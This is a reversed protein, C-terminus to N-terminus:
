LAQNDSSDLRSSSPQLGASTGTGGAPYPRRRDVGMEHRAAEMFEARHIKQEGSLEDLSSSWVLNDLTSTYGHAATALEVSCVLELVKKSLWLARLLDYTDVSDDTPAQSRRRRDVITEVRQVSDLFGMIATKREFRAEAARLDEHRRSEGRTALYQGTLTGVTGLAVGLLPLVTASVVTADM